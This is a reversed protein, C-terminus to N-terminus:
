TPLSFHAEKRSLRFRFAGDINELSPDADLIDIFKNLVKLSEKQLATLEADDLQGTQEAKRLTDDLRKKFDKNAGMANQRVVRRERLKSNRLESKLSRLDHELAEKLSRHPSSLEEVTSM